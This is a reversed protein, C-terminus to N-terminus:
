PIVFNIKKGTEREYDYIEEALEVYYDEDHWMYIGNDELTTLYRRIAYESEGTQRSAEAISEFWKGLEVCYVRRKKM